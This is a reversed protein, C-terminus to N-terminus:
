EGQTDLDYPRKVTNNKKVIDYKRLKQVAQTLESPTIRLADMVRAIVAQEKKRPLNYSKISQIVRTLFRDVTAPLKADMDELSENQKPKSNNPILNILKAM